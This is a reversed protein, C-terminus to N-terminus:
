DDHDGTGIHIMEGICYCFALMLICAILACLGYEAYQYLTVDDM